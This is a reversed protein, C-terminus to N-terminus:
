KDNKVVCNADLIKQAEEFLYELATSLLEEKNLNILLLSIETLNRITKLQELLWEDIM